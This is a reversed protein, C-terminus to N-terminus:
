LGLLVRLAAVDGLVPEGAQRFQDREARTLKTWGAHAVGYAYRANPQKPSPPAWIGEEAHRRADERIAELQQTTM